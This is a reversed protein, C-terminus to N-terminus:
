HVVYIQKEEREVADWFEDDDDFEKAGWSVLDVSRKLADKLDGFLGGMDFLTTGDATEVLVDIDSKPTQDGRAYSGFLSARLVFPNNRFVPECIEKIEEVTYMRRAM